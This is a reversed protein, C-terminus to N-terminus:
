PTLVFLSVGYMNQPYRVTWTGGTATQTATYSCLEGTDRLSIWQAQSPAAPKGQSVWTQYSNSHTRDIMYQRVHLSGSSAFPLNNVTLSVLSSSASNATGGAAHNYVLVQVSQGDAAITAAANVQADATNGGTVPLQNAGMLHLVRFANFAPKPVDFSETIAPDGKLLLGYNGERYARATGTDIEEYLDSLAWYGYGAPPARTADTGILHMLKAIFSASSENDRAIHPMYSPGFETNWIEGTFNKSKVMDVITTNHYTVMGNADSVTGGGDDGYRHFSIFDLKLSNTRAFDILSPIAYPSNGGTDAPGGVKLQADGQLLGTVTNRYLENYASPGPAYMWSAENWIEFYWNNRVEAAGYRTEIHRVFEAMLTQWRTWDKPQSINPSMNNYWLSALNQATNTALARPTFSVEVFPRMGAAVIADYVQDLRTWNYTATGGPESYVGIDDNFIGHFRAYRFGAQDHGKKLAGQINRGYATTLITNAHDTAVAGEHFRSWAAGRSGANVTLNVAPTGTTVWPSTGTCAVGVGVTSGAAGTTGATGGAAGGTGGRGAAGTTGGRGANGTSGGTGAASTGAIGGTGTTGGRGANGTSGVSGASGGTGAGGTTAGVGT